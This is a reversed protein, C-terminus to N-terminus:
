AYILVPAPAGAAVTLERLSRVAAWLAIIAEPSFVATAAKRADQCAKAIEPTLPSLEFNLAGAVELPDVRALVAALDTQCAAIELPLQLIKLGDVATRLQRAAEKLMTRREVPSLEEDLVSLKALAQGTTWAIKARQQTLRKKGVIRDPIAQLKEVAYQLDVVDDSAALTTCLNQIVIHYFPAEVPLTEVVASLERTSGSIDNAYYLMVGYAQRCLAVEGRANRQSMELASRAVEVAAQTQGCSLLLHARRREITPQCCSCGSAAAATFVAKSGRTRGIRFLIWALVALARSELCSIGAARTARVAGIALPLAAAPDATAEQDAEELVAAASGM